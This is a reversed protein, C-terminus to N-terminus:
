WDEETEPLGHRFTQWTDALRAKAARWRRATAAARPFPVFRPFPSRYRGVDPNLYAYAPHGHDALLTASVPIWIGSTRVVDTEPM